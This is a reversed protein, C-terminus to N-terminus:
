CFRTCKCGSCSCCWGLRTCTCRFSRFKSRLCCSKYRFRSCKCGLCCSYSGSCCRCKSLWCCQWKLGGCRSGFVAALGSSLLLLVVGLVAAVCVCLVAAVDGYCSMWLHFRPSVSRRLSSGGNYAVMRGEELQSCCQRIRRGRSGKRPSGTWAATWSLTMQSPLASRRGVSPSFFSLLFSPLFSLHFFFCSGPHGDHPRLPATQQGPALDCHRARQAPLPGLLCRTRGWGAEGGAGLRSRGRQEGASEM